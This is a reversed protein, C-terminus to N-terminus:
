PTLSIWVGDNGFGVIDARGDGNLDALLRPHKQVRWGGAEYAFNPVVMQLPGFTGDGNNLSVWVGHTGFGVVDARGDGTLDALFRPHKEVRWGGAEYAFNDIVKHVAGFTGDGNNLSVWVGHTGFGVVDARGDGTLDALFRPHKEVRWGGAEYAFNDIVKQLPGFSGGGTNHSTWVGATGFGVVDDTGDGTVDALFRPHKEVRWGGANYGFNAIAFQPAQFTGNGNNISVWVGDDGFGVIDASSDHTLRALFRPHKDVRWNGANYGFNAVVFIPMTVARFANIRGGGLMGVFGPNDADINDCTSQLIDRVQANTLFRHRSWILAAVGAAHPSAMSTGDLFGFMDNPLTSWINVGPAAVDVNSGFNSFSARHDSQDLAAVAIVEPYVGPFQPTIDTNTNDNGAAFVVVVNSAVATQIATRVGAHDGNMRWSCNIVYSRAPNAVSQAAVYNIADARNQNMGTQLDIRLPMLRCGPAVGLVGMANDTAAITGSVHTGHGNQDEPVPDAADAFDWDEAGRPLFNARLDPHDLDAGTDIVAIIVNPDGRTIDWADTADIDADVTGVVGNVAQATNHMAWLRPFDTDDPIYELASNFSVESPEAFAVDDRDAFSRITEFLAGNEPVTVTFYGATRQETVVDSGQEQLVRNVQDRDVGPRFQVTFEDPLFYRSAGNEDVLVPIANAVEPRDELSREAVSRDLGPQVYVAAFGREYNAGQSVSLVPTSRVIDNLQDADVRAAFTVMEEDAKPTFDLARGTTKDVYQFTNEARVAHRAVAM